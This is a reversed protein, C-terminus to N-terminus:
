FIFYPYYHICEEAGIEYLSM